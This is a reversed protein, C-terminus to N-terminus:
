KNAETNVVERDDIGSQEVQKYLAISHFGVYPCMPQEVPHYHFHNRPVSCRGGGVQHCLWHLVICEKAFHGRVTCYKCRSSRRRAAQARLEASRDSGAASPSTQPTTSAAPAEGESGPEPTKYREPATWSRNVTPRPRTIDTGYNQELENWGSRLIDNRMHSRSLYAHEDNFHIYPEMRETVRTAILRKIAAEEQARLRKEKSYHQQWESTLFDALHSLRQCERQIEHKRESFRCLRYIDAAVEADGVAEIAQTVIYDMQFREGLLYLEDGGDGPPIEPRPEAHLVNCYIPAGGGMTSYVTPERDHREVNLAVYDAQQPIGHQPLMNPLMIPAGHTTRRYKWFPYGPHPAIDSLQSSLSSMASSTDDELPLPEAGVEWEVTPSTDAVGQELFVEELGVKANNAPPGETRRGLQRSLDFQAEPDGSLVAELEDDM